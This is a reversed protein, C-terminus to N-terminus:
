CTSPKSGRPWPKWGACIWPKELFGMEDDQPLPADVPVLYGLKTDDAEKMTHGHGSFWVLVARDPDKGPGAIVRNFAKRLAAGDPNKVLDVQWGLGTLMQAVAKADSVPNPLRPWGRTYESCGVVLAYYGSYIRMPKLRGSPDRAMIKIGGEGRMEIGGVNGGGTQALQLGSLLSDM